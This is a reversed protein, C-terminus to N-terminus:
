ASIIERGLENAIIKMIEFTHNRGKQRLDSYFGKIDTLTVHRRIDPHDFKNIDFSKSIRHCVIVRPTKPLKQMDEDFKKDTMVEAVQFVASQGVFDMGGDNAVTVSFRNLEYGFSHFYQRMIAFSSIEFSQGKRTGYNKGDELMNQLIKQASIEDESTITENIESMLKRVNENKQFYYEYLEDLAHKIAEDGDTLFTEKIFFEQVDNEDILNSIVGSQRKIYDRRFTNIGFEIRKNNFAREIAVKSYPKVIKDKLYFEILVIASLLVTPYNLNKELYKRLNQNRLHNLM